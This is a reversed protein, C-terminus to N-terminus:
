PMSYHARALARAYEPSDPHWQTYGLPDPREEPRMFAPRQQREKTTLCFLTPLGSESATREEYLTSTRRGLNASLISPPVTPDAVLRQAAAALDAVYTAWTLEPGLLLLGMRQCPYGKSNSAWQPCHFCIGSRLGALARDLDPITGAAKVEGVLGELHIWSEEGGSGRLIHAVLAILAHTRQELTIAAAAIGGWVSYGCTGSLSLASTLAGMAERPQTSRMYARGAVVFGEPESPHARQLLEACVLMRAYDGCAEAQKAARFEPSNRIANMVGSGVRGQIRQGEKNMRM